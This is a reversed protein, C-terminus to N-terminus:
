ATIRWIAEVFLDGFGHLVEGLVALLVLVLLLHTESRRIEHELIKLARRPDLNKSELRESDTGSLIREYVLRQLRDRRMYEIIVVIVQSAVIAAGARNLWHAECTYYAM